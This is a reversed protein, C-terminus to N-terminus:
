PAAIEFRYALRDQASLTLVVVRRLGVSQGTEAAEARASPDFRVAIRQGARRLTAEGRSVTLKEEPALLLPIQERFAGAHRVDVRLTRPEFRLTKDGRRGLGYRVELVGSPLDRTGPRPTIAEGGVAFAADLTAAEYVGKAEASATGWAAGDSGTQSQVFAGAEPM